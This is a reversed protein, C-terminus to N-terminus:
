LVLGRAEAEKSCARAIADFHDAAQAEGHKACLNSMGRALRYELRLDDDTIDFSEM